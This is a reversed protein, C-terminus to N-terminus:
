GLHFEPQDNAEHDAAENVVPLVPNGLLRDFPCPSDFKERNANHCHGHCDRWKCAPLDLVVQWPMYILPLHKCAFM